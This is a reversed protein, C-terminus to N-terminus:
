QYCQPNDAIAQMIRASEQLSTLNFGGLLARGDISFVCHKQVASLQSLFPHKELVASLNQALSRESLLLIQPQLALLAEISYAYYGEKQASSNELQMLQLMGNVTTHNGAASIQGSDTLLIFQTRPAGQSLGQLQQIQQQINETLAVAESQRQLLKGLTDIHALLDQVNKHPNALIDLQIGAQKLQNLVAEPGIEESGIVRNPQLSLIGESNLNRQYGVIPLNKQQAFPKSTSDVAIIQDQLGLATLLETIGAGVSIIREQAFAPPMLLCCAAFLPLLIKKM